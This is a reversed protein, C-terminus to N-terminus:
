VRLFMLEAISATSNGSSPKKTKRPKAIEEISLGRSALQRTM